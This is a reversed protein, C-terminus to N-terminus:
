YEYNQFKPIDTTRCRVMRFKIDWGTPEFLIKIWDIDSFKMSKTTMWIFYIM